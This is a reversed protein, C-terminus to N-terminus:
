FLGKKSLSNKDRAGDRKVEGRHGREKTLLPSLFVLCIRVERRRVLSFPPWLGPQPANGKGKEKGLLLTAPPLTSTGCRGWM